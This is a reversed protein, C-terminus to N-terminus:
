RTAKTVSPSALTYLDTLYTVRGVTADAVRLSWTVTDPAEIVQVTSETAWSVLATRPDVLDIDGLVAVTAGSPEAYSWDTTMARGAVDLDYVLVRSGGSHLDNSFMALTDPGMQTFHGHEFRHEPADITVESGLGGIQLLPTGTAGDVELVLDLNRFNIAYRGRDPLWALSNAHGYEVQMEGQFLHAENHSCTVGVDVLDTDDVVSFLRRAEAGDPTGLPVEILASTQVLAEPLEGWPMPTYEHALYVLTGDAHEVFAHHGAPTRTFVEEDATMAGMPTRTVGTHPTDVNLLGHMVALGDVSPQAITVNHPPDTAPVWWVPDGEADVVIAWSTAYGVINFLVYFADSAPGGAELALPPFGEPVDGATLTGEDSVAMSGDDGEVVARWRYTRGAKLGLVRVAHDLTGPPTRETAQWVDTGELALEVWGEGPVTSAFTARFVTPVVESQTATALLPAATPVASDATPATSTSPVPEPADGRCAFLVALLVTM